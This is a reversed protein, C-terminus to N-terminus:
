RPLKGLVRWIWRHIGHFWGVPEAFMLICEGHIPEVGNAQCFSLAAESVTGQQMWIRRIGAKAAEQVLKETQDPRVVLIIGDVPEPLEAISPWCPDGDIEQAHPHIPLLRYGKSRMERYISNGFKRGSRSMGAIALTRQSLFDDIAAKSTM